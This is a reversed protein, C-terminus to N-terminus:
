AGSRLPKWLFRLLRPPDWQSGFRGPFAPIEGARSLGHGSGRARFGWPEPDPGASRSAEALSARVSLICGVRPVFRSASCVGDCALGLCPAVVLIREVLLGQRDDNFHCCGQLGLPLDQSNLFYKAGKQVAMCLATEASGEGTPLLGSLWEMGYLCCRWPGCASASALEVFVEDLCYCDAGKTKEKMRIAEQARGILVPRALGTLSSIEGM